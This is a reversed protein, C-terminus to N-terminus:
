PVHTNRKHSDTIMPTLTENNQRIWTDTSPRTKDHRTWPHAHADTDHQDHDHDLTRRMDHITTQTDPHATGSIVQPQRRRRM